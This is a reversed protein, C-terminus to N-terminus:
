SCDDMGQLSEEISEAYDNAAQEYDPESEAREEDADDMAREAKCVGGDSGVCPGCASKVAVLHELAVMRAADLLHDILTRIVVPDVQGPADLAATLSGIASKLHDDIASADEIVDGEPLGALAAVADQWAENVKDAGPDSEPDLDAIAQQFLGETSTVEDLEACAQDRLSEAVSSAAYTIVPEGSLAIGEVSAWVDGTGEITSIVKAVYSGNGTDTVLGLLVGPWLVSSDLTVDLGAGLAIGDADRPTIVVTSVTAGDAPITDPLAAVSSRVPDVLASQSGGDDFGIRVTSLLLNKDVSIRVTRGDNDRVMYFYSVGDHLLDRPEDHPATSVVDVATVIGVDSPDTSRLIDFPPAASRATAGSLAAAALVITICIRTNHQSYKMKREAM